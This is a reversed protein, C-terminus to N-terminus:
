FRDNHRRKPSPAVSKASTLDRKAQADLWYALGIISLHAGMEYVLNLNFSNLFDVM